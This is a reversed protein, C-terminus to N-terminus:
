DDGDTSVSEIAERRRERIRKAAVRPVAVPNENVEGAKQRELTTEYDIPNSDRVFLLQALPDRTQDLPESGQGWTWIRRRHYVEGEPVLPSDSVPLLIALPSVGLSISLAVLDDADIRREGKEIRSLGLTAIPRGLEELKRSLDAYTLGRDERLRKVNARATEGTPGLPNKKEAM